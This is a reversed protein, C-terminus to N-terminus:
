ISVIEDIREDEELSYNYKDPLTFGICKRNKVVTKYFDKEQEFYKKEDCIDFFRNRTGEYNRICVRTTKTREAYTFYHVPVNHMRGDGGFVPIFAVQPTEHYSLSEVSFIDSHGISELYNAKLLQDRINADKNMFLSPDMHNILAEAEQDTVNRKVSLSFDGADTQTYLPISLIPALDFYLAAFNDNVSKVFQKKVERIDIGNIFKKEEFDDTAISHDTIILNIKGMKTFTFDDRYPSTNTILTTMNQQALPTFLLRYEVENNRDYAGFLAEFKTNAMAQFSGGKSVSERSMKELKKTEKKVFKDVGSTSTDSLGSPKRKFRLNPAANNGYVLYANKSYEPAPKVVTATLTQRHTVVRVNKGSGSVTTWTITLFGVYSKNYVRHNITRFKVFSNTNISGSYLGYISCQDPIKNNYGYVTALMEAKESSFTEDLNFRDVCSNVIKIFDTQDLHSVLPLVQTYCENELIKVKKDHQAQISSHYEIKEKIYLNIILVMGIAIVGSVITTVVAATGFAAITIILAIVFVTLAFAFIVWCLTKENKYHKLDKLSLSAEARAKSLKNNSAINENVDINAIKVLDDFYKASATNVKDKLASKYYKVPEFEM